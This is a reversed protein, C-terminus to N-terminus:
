KVIEYELCELYIKPYRSKLIELNFKRKVMGADLLTQWADETTPSTKSVVITHGKKALSKKSYNNQREYLSVIVDKHIPKSPIEYLRSKGVMEYPFCKEALGSAITKSFGLKILQENLEAGSYTSKGMKPSTECFTNLKRSLEYVDIKKKM